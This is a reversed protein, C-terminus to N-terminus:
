GASFAMQWVATSNLADIPAQQLQSMTGVEIYSM